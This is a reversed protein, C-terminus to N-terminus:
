GNSVEKLLAGAFLLALTARIPISIASHALSMAFLVATSGYRGLGLVIVAQRTGLGAPTIPLSGLIISAPVFALVDSFPARIGFALMELYLILGQATFISARIQMLRLYHSLRAKRFASMAPRRRLWGVVRLDGTNTHWLWAVTWMAALAAAPYYWAPVLPAGPVLLAAVLMMAVIVQFDVFSQFALTCGASLWPVGKSRHVLSVFTTGAAVSNVVQLFEQAATVPMMDRFTTHCHFYTFLRSYLFTEGFLWLAVSLAAVPVFLWLNAHTLSRWFERLPVHEALWLLLGLAILYLCVNRVWPPTDDFVHAVRIGCRAFREVDLLSARHQQEPDLPAKLLPHGQM